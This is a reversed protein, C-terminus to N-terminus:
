WRFAVGVNAKWFALGSLVGQTFLNGNGLDTLNVSNDVSTKYYRLDGRFGWKGSFGMIGGGIDGGFRTGNASITGIANIDPANTPDLVFITSRLQVAGVGGSVYPIYQHNSGFPVAAIANAMYSNVTPNNEFQVNNLEFSPAFDVLAEAGVYGGWLYAAQGGFNISSTQNPDILDENNRGSGFNTGVFASAVWHDGAHASYGTNALPNQVAPAVPQAVPQASGEQAMARGSLGAAVATAIAFVGLRM